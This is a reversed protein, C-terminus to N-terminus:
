GEHGADKFKRCAPSKALIDTRRSGTWVARMLECKHWSKKGSSHALDFACDRCQKGEPGTGPLDAYGAPQPTPSSAGRLFRGARLTSSAKLPANMWAQLKPDVM